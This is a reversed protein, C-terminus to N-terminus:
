QIENVEMARKLKKLSLSSKTLASQETEYNQAMKDYREDTIRGSVNDESLM